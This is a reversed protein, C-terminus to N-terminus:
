QSHSMHSRGTRAYDSEAYSQQISTATGRRFPANPVRAAAGRSRGHIRRERFSSRFAVRRGDSGSGAGGGARGFASRTGGRPAARDRARAGAAVLPEVEWAPEVRALRRRSHETRAAGPGVSGPPETSNDRGVRGAHGLAGRERRGRARAGAVVYPEFERAPEVRALRRPPGRRCSSLQESAVLMRSESIPQQSADVGAHDRQDGLQAAM